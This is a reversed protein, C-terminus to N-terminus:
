EQQDETSDELEINTLRQRAWHRVHLVSVVGQTATENKIAFYIKYPRNKRGYLLVRIEYGLDDSESAVPCRAPMEELSAIGNMVGNFWKEAVAFSSSTKIHEVM